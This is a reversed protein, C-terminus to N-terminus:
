REGVRVQCVDPGLSPGVQANRDRALAGFHRHEAHEVPGPAVEDNVGASGFSARVEDSEQLLDVPAIAGLEPNRDLGENQDEVVTRDVGALRGAGSEGRAGQSVTSHSGFYAGSSFSM